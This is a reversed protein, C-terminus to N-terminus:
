GNMLCHVQMRRLDLAEKINGDVLLSTTIEETKLIIKSISGGGTTHSNGMVIEREGERSKERERERDGM